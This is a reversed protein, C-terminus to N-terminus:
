FRFVVSTRFSTSSMGTQVDFRNTAVEKGGFAYADIVNILRIAGTAIAFTYMENQRNKVGDYLVLSTERAAEMDEVNDAHRFADRALNYNVVALDYRMKADLTFFALIYFSTKYFVASFINGNYKQGMGPFFLSRYFSRLKSRRPIEVKFNSGGLKTRRPPAAMLYTEFLNDLYAWGTAAATLITNERYANADMAAKQARANAEEIIEQENANEAVEVYFDYDDRADRYWNYAQLIKFGGVVVFTTHELIAISGAGLSKQGWGPLVMSRSISGMRRGDFDVPEGFEKIRFKISRREYGPTWATLMYEVGTQLACFTAPAAASTAISARVTITANVPKSEVLMCNGSEGSEGPPQAESPVAAVATLTGAALLLVMFFSHRNLHM